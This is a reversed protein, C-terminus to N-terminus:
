VPYGSPGDEMGLVQEYLRTTEVSPDIGLDDVLRSRCTMYTEIAASRQGALMQLRLAAQYLDERWPDHQLARRLLSVGGQVDGRDNLLAAARLMADEFDHRCRERSASFWDDYIEGPLLEGRYVEAVRQLATLEATEDADTRAKAALSLQEEFETM